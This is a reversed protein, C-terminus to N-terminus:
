LLPIVEKGILGLMNDLLLPQFVKLKLVLMNGLLLLM